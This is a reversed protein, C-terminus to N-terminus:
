CVREFVQEYVTRWGKWEDCESVTENHWLLTLQGEVGKVERALQELADLAQNPTLGMYRNLTADMASVPHITLNLMRNSTADFARFPRSMGARFGIHDAYGLSHDHHIGAAELRRWTSPIRQLLYHQRAHQVPVNSLREMRSIEAKLREADSSDHSAVGPHIGMDASQALRRVLARMGPQRWDVPRDYPGRDALLFFYRAKLGRAAHVSELWEYTDYPDQEGCVLVRWRKALRATRGFLVDKGTAAATRWLSRHRYAYASDVDITPNVKYATHEPALGVTHAWSRIRVEVEPRLLWGEAHAMSASARFRGMGDYALKSATCEEMRTVMWFVWSWWDANVRSESAHPVGFPLRGQGPVGPGEVDSWTDLDSHELATGELLGCAPIWVADAAAPSKGGYQVKLGDSATWDSDTKCWRYSRGLVVDFVIYAVYAHRPTVEGSTVWLNVSEAM